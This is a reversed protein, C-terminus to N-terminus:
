KARNFPCCNETFAGSQTSKKEEIEHILNSMTTLTPRIAAATLVIIAIVSFVLELSVQAVPRQYFAIITSTLQARRTM